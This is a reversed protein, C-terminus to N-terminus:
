RPSGERDGELYHSAGEIVLRHHLHAVDVLLGSGPM